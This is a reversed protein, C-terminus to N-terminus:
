DKTAENAQREAIIRELLKRDTENLEISELLDPRREVTRRLSQEKRWQEVKAHHGSLLVDPVTWGRFDAPRTYHPYELLGTSFSDTVASSENGLVGPLLRVVSDTVVMAPLEGGTLVYDGISLEDTVLHERIREDYGEYHGCVLILHSEQALEEAKAQTFPEGQPCMLIVRPRKRELRNPGNLGDTSNPVSPVDSDDAAPTHGEERLQIREAETQQAIMAEVAAFIPEPKLVMGGGGGYPYDDVTQHKNESYDRFNVANLTVLGKEQAKGLISSRFVGECMEPFITLVDIRM